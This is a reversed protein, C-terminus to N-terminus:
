SRAPVLGIPFSGDHIADAKNNWVGTPPYLGAANQHNIRARSGFMVSRPAPDSEGSQADFFYFKFRASGATAGIGGGNAEAETGTISTGDEPYFQESYSSKYEAIKSEKSAGAKYGRRRRGSSFRSYSKKRYIM